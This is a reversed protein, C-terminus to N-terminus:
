SETKEENLYDELQKQYLRRQEEVIEDWEKETWYNDRDDLFGQKILVPGYPTAVIINCSPNPTSTCAVLIILITGLLARM